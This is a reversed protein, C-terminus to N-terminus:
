EGSGQSSEAQKNEAQGDKAAIFEEFNLHVTLEERDTSESSSFSQFLMNHVQRGTLHKNKIEFVRPVKENADQFIKELAELQVYADEKDRGVILLTISVTRNGIERSTKAAGQDSSAADVRVAGNISISQVIGPLARGEPFDDDKLTIEASALDSKLIM